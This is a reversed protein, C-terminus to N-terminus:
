FQISDDQMVDIKKTVITTGRSKLCTDALPFTGFLFRVIKLHDLRESPSMGDFRSGLWFLPLATHRAATFVPDEEEEDDRYPNTHAQM